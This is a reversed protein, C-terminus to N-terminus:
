KAATALAIAAGYVNLVQQFIWAQGHGRSSNSGDTQQETNVIVCM